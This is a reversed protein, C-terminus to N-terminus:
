HSFVKAPYPKCHQWGNQRCFAEAEDKEFLQALDSNQVLGAIKDSVFLFAKIGKPMNRDDIVCSAAVVYKM